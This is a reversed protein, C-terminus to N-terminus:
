WNFGKRLPAAGIILDDNHLKSGIIADDVLAEAESKELCCEVLEIEKMDRGVKTVSFKLDESPFYPCDQKVILGYDGLWIKKVEIKTYGM